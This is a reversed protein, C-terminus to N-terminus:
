SAITASVINNNACNPNTSGINCCDSPTTASSSNYTFTGNSSSIPCNALCNNTSEQLLCYCTPSLTDGEESVGNVIITGTVPQCATAIPSNVGFLCSALGTAGTGMYSSDAYCNAFTGPYTNINVTAATQGTNTPDTFGSNIQTNPDCVNICYWNDACWTYTKNIGCSYSKVSVYLVLTLVVLSVLYLIAFVIFYPIQNIPTKPNPKQQM